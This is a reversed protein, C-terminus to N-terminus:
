KTSTPSHMGTDCSTNTNQQTKLCFVAYSIRMLSQLDRTSKRDQGCAAAAVDLETVAGVIRELGAAGAGRQLQDFAAQLGRRRLCTGRRRQQQVTTAAFRQACVQRM